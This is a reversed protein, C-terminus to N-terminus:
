SFDLSHIVWRALPRRCQMELRETNTESREPLSSTMASITEPQLFIFVINNKEKERAMVSITETPVLDFSQKVKEKKCTRTEGSVKVERM